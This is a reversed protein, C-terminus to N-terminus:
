DDTRAKPLYKLGFSHKLFQYCIRFQIDLDSLEPDDFSPVHVLARDLFVQRYRIEKTRLHEFVVDVLAKFAVLSSSAIATWKFESLFSHARACKRLDTELADMASIEGFLGGFFCWYRNLPPNCHVWAEDGCIEYTTPM